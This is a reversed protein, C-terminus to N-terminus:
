YTKYSGASEKCTRESFVKNQHFCDRFQILSDAFTM